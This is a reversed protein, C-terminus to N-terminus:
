CELPPPHPHSASPNCSSPAILKCPAGCCTPCMIVSISSYIHATNSGSHTHPSLILTHRQATIVITNEKKKLPIEGSLESQPVGDLAFGKGSYFLRIDSCSRAKSIGKDGFAPATLSCLALAAVIFSDMGASRRVTPSPCTCIRRHRTGFPAPSDGGPSTATADSSTVAVLHRQAYFFFFFVGLFVGLCNLRRKDGAAERRTQQTRTQEGGGCPVCSHCSRLPGTEKGARLPPFSLLPPSFFSRVPAKTADGVSM